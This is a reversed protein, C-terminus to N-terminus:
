RNTAKIKIMKIMKTNLMIKTRINIMIDRDNDTDQDFIEKEKDNDKDRDNSKGKDNVRNCDNDKNYDKHIENENDKM